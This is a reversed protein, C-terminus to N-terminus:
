YPVHPWSSVISFKPKNASETPAVPILLYWTSSATKACFKQWDFTTRYRLCMLNILLLAWTLKIICAVLCACLTSCLQHLIDLALKFCHCCVHCSGGWFPQLPNVVQQGGLLNLQNLICWYPHILSKQFLSPSTCPSLIHMLCAPTHPPVVAGVTAAGCNNWFLKSSWGFLYIRM